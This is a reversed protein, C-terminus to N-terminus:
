PASPQDAAAVLPVASTALTPMARGGHRLLRRVPQRSRTRPIHSVFATRIREAPWGTTEALWRTVAASVTSRARDAADVVLWADIGDDGRPLVALDTLTVQRRLLSELGEPGMAGRPTEFAEDRRSLFWLRGTSDRQVLDGTLYWGDRFAREYRVPEGWYARMLSPLDPRLALEGPADGAEQLSRDVRCMVSADQSLMPAGILGGILSRSPEREVASLTVLGAEVQWWGTRVPAGSLAEAQALEEITLPEGLSIIQRLSSSAIPSRSELLRRVAGPGVLAITADTGAIRDFWPADSDADDMAVTAGSALPMWLAYPLYPGFGTALESWVVDSPQLGIAEVGVRAAWELAGRAQLVGRAAASRGSSYLLLAPDDALPVASEEDRGKAEDILRALAHTGAPPEGEDIVVVHDLLPLSERLAAIRDRYVEATTLLLRAGSHQLRQALVEAGFGAYLPVVIARRRLASLMLVAIAPHPELAVALRDAGTIGLEALAGALRTALRSLEHAEIVRRQGSRDTWGIRATEVM